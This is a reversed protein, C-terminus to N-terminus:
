RKRSSRKLLDGKPPPDDAPPLNPQDKYFLEGKPEPYDPGTGTSRNKEEEDGTPGSEDM